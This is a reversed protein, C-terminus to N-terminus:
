RKPVNGVDGENPVPSAVKVADPEVGQSREQDKSQSLNCLLSYLDGFQHESDKAATHSLRRQM